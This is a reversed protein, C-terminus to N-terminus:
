APPHLSGDGLGDLGIGLLERGTEALERLTAEFAALATFAEGHRRQDDLSIRPLRARRVDLRNSAGSGRAAVARAAVHLHGAVFEPVFHGPDARVLYLHPGLAAGAEGAAIVRPVAGRAVTTAVVDGEQLLIHGPDEETRGSPASGSVMDQLTLVPVGGSETEMKMPAQHLALIGAKAHDGFTGAAPPRGDSEDLSPLADRLASLLDEAETRVTAFRKDAVRQVYRGPDLDVEDDLLDIIRVARGVGPEDYEAAPDRRFARWADVTREAFDERDATSVMLIHDVRPDGPAPRRMVWVALPVAMNPVAGVPLGFVGRLVGSRLLQGRIRRGSRRNAAAPPMLMIVTGGPRAHALAHQAWALESEMRPPLGYEWRPDAILEDYGWNRDNFPPNTVVLDARVGPFADERLSDGARVVANRTRLAMRVATIRATAEDAEQGLLETASLADLAGLLFGGSGCAPDFLTGAEEGALALVLRVIPEPTEYVRRKHLEFYRQRLFEFAEPAGREGALDALGRALPVHAPELAPPFVEDAPLGTAASRVAAPLEAALGDDPRAALERWRGPERHVFLLFAGAFLLVDALAVEDAARRLEQWLQEGSSERHLKGQVNLWERIEHLSFSPSTATGGVPEPFDDHRRRWNSVAARGVGALRAIDAATVTADSQM